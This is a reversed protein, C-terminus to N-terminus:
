NARPTAHVTDVGARRTALWERAQRLAEDVEGKSMELTLQQRYEKALQNGQMAALNFWKHASVLDTEIGLGPTSAEIGMRYMEDASFIREAGGLTTPNLEVSM